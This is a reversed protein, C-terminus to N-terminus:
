KKEEEKFPENNTFYNYFAEAKILIDTVSKYDHIFYTEISRRLANSATKGEKKGQLWIGLRNTIVHPPVNLVDSFNAFSQKINFACETAVMKTISLQTEASMGKNNAGRKYKDEDKVIDFTPTGKDSIKKVFVNYNNGVSFKTQNLKNTSFEGEKGSLFKIKFYYIEIQTNLNLWQRHFEISNVTEQSKEGITYM